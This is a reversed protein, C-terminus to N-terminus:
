NAQNELWNRGQEKHGLFVKQTYDRAWVMRSRAEISKRRTGELQFLEEEKEDSQTENIRSFKGLFDVGELLWSSLQDDVRQPENASWGM